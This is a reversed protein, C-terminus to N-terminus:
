CILDGCRIVAEPSTTPSRCRRILMRGEIGSLFMRQHLSALKWWMKAKSRLGAFCADVDDAVCFLGLGMM